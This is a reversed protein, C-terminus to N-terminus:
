PTKRQAPGGQKQQFCEEGPADGGEAAVVREAPDCHQLVVFFIELKKLFVFINFNMEFFDNTFQKDTMFHQKVTTEELQAMKSSIMDEICRCSLRMAKM